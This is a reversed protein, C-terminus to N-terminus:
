LVNKKKKEQEIAKFLQVVALDRDIALRENVEVFDTRLFGLVDLVGLM